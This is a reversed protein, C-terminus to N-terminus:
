FVWCLRASGQLGPRLCTDAAHVKSICTRSSPVTAGSIATAGKGAGLLGEEGEKLWWSHSPPPSPFRELDGKRRRKKSRGSGGKRRVGGMGVDDGMMVLLLLVLIGIDESVRRYDLEMCCGARNWSPEEGVKAM